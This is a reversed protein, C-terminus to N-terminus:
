LGLRLIIASGACVLGTFSPLSEELTNCTIFLNIACWPRGGRAMCFLAGCFDRGM